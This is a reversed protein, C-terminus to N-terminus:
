APFHSSWSILARRLSPSPTCRRRWSRTSLPSGSCSRTARHCPASPMRPAAHVQVQVPATGSTARAFPPKVHSITQHHRRRREHGHCGERGHESRLRGGRRLAPRGASLTTGGLHRVQRAVPCRIAGTASHALTEAEGVDTAPLSSVLVVNGILGPCPRLGQCTMSQSGGLTGWM